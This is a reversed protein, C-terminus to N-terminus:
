EEYVIVTEGPPAPDDHIVALLGEGYKEVKSPGIGHAQLLGEEDKPKLRALDRLSRDTAVVYPPVGAERAVDLRYRRLAEFVRVAEDDLMDEDVALAARRRRGSSSKTRVARESPLLIRAPRREWMVDKGEETILVVPRDGGSLEVWGAAVLRRILRGIWDETMESMLGFTPTQELGQRTLRDDDAGKLLKVAVGQGFRGHVRGVASLAQRVLLTVREPDKADDDEWEVCVDCRGCGALTEAEDGFYRLIADHRCSGGEAWRMLELFM